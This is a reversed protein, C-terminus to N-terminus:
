KRTISEFYRLTKGRTLTNTSYMRDVKSSPMSISVNANLTNRYNRYLEIERDRLAQRAISREEKKESVVSKVLVALACILGVAFLNFALNENSGSDTVFVPVSAPIDFIINSNSINDAKIHVKVDNRGSNEVILSSADPTNKYFVNVEPASTVGNLVLTLKDSSESVKRIKAVSDTKLTINYGEDVGELIVSNLVNDAGFAGLTTLSFIFILKALIFIRKM